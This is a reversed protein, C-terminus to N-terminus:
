PTRRPTPERAVYIEGAEVRVEFVKLFLRVSPFSAGNRVDVQWRHWPCTVVSGSLSGEALPGGLHLCTNETAYFVGGVHYLALSLAGGHVTLAGGSPLDAERAVNVFGDM